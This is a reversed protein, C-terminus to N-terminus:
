RKVRKTYTRTGTSIINTESRTTGRWDCYTVVVSNPGSAVSTFNVSYPSRLQGLNVGNVTVSVSDCGAVLLNFSISSGPSVSEFGGPVSAYVETAPRVALTAFSLALIISTLRKM